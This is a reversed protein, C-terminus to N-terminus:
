VITVDACSQWIQAPAECGWRSGLACEGAKLREPIRLCDHTTVKTLWEGSCLGQSLQQPPHLSQPDDCPPDFWRKCCKWGGHGGHEVGGSAVPSVNSAMAQAGGVDVSM